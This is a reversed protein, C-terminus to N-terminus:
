KRKKAGSENGSYRGTQLAAGVAEEVTLPHLSLKNAARYTRTKLPKKASKCAPKRAMM